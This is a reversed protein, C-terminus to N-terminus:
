EVMLDQAPFLVLSTEQYPYDPLIKRLLSYINKELLELSPITGIKGAFKGLYRKEGHTIEQLYTDDKRIFLDLFKPDIEKLMSDLHVEVPFGLFIKVEFM